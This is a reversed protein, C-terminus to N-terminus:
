GFGRRGDRSRPAAPRDALPIEQVVIPRLTGERLGGGARRSIGAM